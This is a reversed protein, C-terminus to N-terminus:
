KNKQMQIALAGMKIANSEMTLINTSTVQASYDFNDIYVGRAKMEKTVSDWQIAFKELFQIQTEKSYSASKKGRENWDEQNSISIYDRSTDKAKRELVFELIDRSLTIARKELEINPSNSLLVLQANVDKLEKKTAEQNALNQKNQEAAIQDLAVRQTYARYSQWFILCIAVFGVSISYVIIKKAKEGKSPYVSAWIGLMALGITAIALLVAIIIDTM